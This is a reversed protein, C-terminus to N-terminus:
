NRSSRLRQRGVKNPEEMRARVATLPEATLGHSAAIAYVDVNADAGEAIVAQLATVKEEFAQMANQREALYKSFSRRVLTLAKAAAQEPDEAAQIRSVFYRVDM